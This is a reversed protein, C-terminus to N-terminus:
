SLLALFIDNLGPMPFVGEAIPNVHVYIREIIIVLMLFLVLIYM